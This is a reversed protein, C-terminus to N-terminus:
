ALPLETHAQCLRDHLEIVPKADIHVVGSGITQVYRCAAYRPALAEYREIWAQRAPLKDAAVPWVGPQPRMHEGLGMRWPKGSVRARFCRQNLCMRLYLPDSNLRNLLAETEPDSPDFLCHTLAVRWGAPTQYLRASTGPHAAICRQVHRQAIAHGGGRAAQQWRFVTAGLLPAAVAAGLLVLLWTAGNVLGGLVGNLIVAGLMLLVFLGFGWRMPAGAPVDIDAFFVNPTNLCRAGYSNRTIVASGDRAVIEERIPSGEAGNYAQKRERRVVDQGALLADMAERARQEAHTQAAAPSDDSWGFRRVTFQRKGQRQQLRAEAWHQPIIM